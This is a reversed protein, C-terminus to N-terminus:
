QGEPSGVQPNLRERENLWVRALQGNLWWLWSDGPTQWGSRADIPRVRHAIRNVFVHLRYFTRAKLNWKM